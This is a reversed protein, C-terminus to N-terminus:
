SAWPDGSNQDSAYRGEELRLETTSTVERGAGGRGPYRTDDRRSDRRSAPTDATLGADRRRKKRQREASKERRKAIVDPEPQHQMHHVILYGRETRTWFGADVLEQIAASPRETEAFRRVDIADIRGGTERRMAWCLGEIHTRFAADTLGARACDDGFDDSVKLWTM